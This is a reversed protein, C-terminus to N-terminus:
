GTLSARLAELLRDATISIKEDTLYTGNAIAGRIEAVKEARVGSDPDLASLAQAADSIEVRDVPQPTGGLPGERTSRLREVPAAGPFRGTGNIPPIDTM